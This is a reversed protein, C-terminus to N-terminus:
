DPESFTFKGNIRSKLATKFPNDVPPQGYPQIPGFRPPQYKHFWNEFDYNTILVVCHWCAQIPPRNKRQVQIPDGALWTLIMEPTVDKDVTAGWEDFVVVKEGNYRCFWKGDSGVNHFYIGAALYNAKAEYSKGRGPPGWYVQVDVERQVFRYRSFLEHTKIQEMMSELNKGNMVVKTAVYHLMALREPDEETLMRTSVVELVHSLDECESMLDKLFLLKRTREKLDKLRREPDDKKRGQIVAARNIQPDAQQLQDVAAMREENKFLMPEEDVNLRSNVGDKEKKTCYDIQFKRDQMAIEWRFMRHGWIDQRQKVANRDIKTTFEVSGQLHVAGTTPCKELQYVSFSVDDAFNFNRNICWGGGAKRRVLPNNATQTPFASEFLTFTFLYAPVNGAEEIRMKKVKPPM